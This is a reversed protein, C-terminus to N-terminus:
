SLHRDHPVNKYRDKKQEIAAQESTRSREGIRHRGLGGFADGFQKGALHVYVNRLYVTHRSEVPRGVM